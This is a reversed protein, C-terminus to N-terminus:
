RPRMLASSRALACARVSRTTFISAPSMRALEHPEAASVGDRSTGRPPRGQLVEAIEAKSRERRSGRPGRDDEGAPSAGKAKLHIRAADTGPTHSIASIGALRHIVGVLTSPHFKRQSWAIVQSAGSRIIAAPGSNRHGAVFAGQGQWAKEQPAQGRGVEGSLYEDDIPKSSSDRLSQASTRRRARTSATM